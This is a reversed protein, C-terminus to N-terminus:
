PWVNGCRQALVNSHMVAFIAPKVVQQEFVPGASRSNRFVHLPRCFSLAGLLNLRPNVQLTVVQKLPGVRSGVHCVGRSFRLDM